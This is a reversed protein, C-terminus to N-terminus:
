GDGGKDSSTRKSRKGTNETSSEASLLYEGLPISSQETWTDMMYKLQGLACGEVVELQPPTCFNRLHVLIAERHQRHAPLDGDIGDIATQIADLEDENIFDFRPVTIVTDGLALQIVVRPDDASPVEVRM